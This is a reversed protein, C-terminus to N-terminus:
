GKLRSTTYGIDRRDDAKAAFALRKGDPSLRPNLVRTAPDAADRGGSRDVRWTDRSRRSRNFVISGSASVRFNGHGNRPTSAVHEVLTVAPTIALRRPDPSARRPDRQRARPV